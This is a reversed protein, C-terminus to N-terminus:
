HKSDLNQAPFGRASLRFLFQDTKFIFKNAAAMVTLDAKKEESALTTREHAKFQNMNLFPHGNRKWPKM